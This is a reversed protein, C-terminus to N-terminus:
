RFDSGTRAAWDRSESPTDPTLSVTAHSPVWAIEPESAAAMAVATPASAPARITTLTYERVIMGSVSGCRSAYQEYTRLMTARKASISSATM